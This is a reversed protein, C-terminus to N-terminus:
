QIMQLKFNMTRVNLTGETFNRPAQRTGNVARYSIEALQCNLQEQIKSQNVIKDLLTM